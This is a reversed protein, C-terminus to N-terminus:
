IRIIALDAQKDVALVKGHIALSKERDRYYGREPIPKGDRFAPFFVTADKVDGVVHYNTLVLRADKDVLSGTGTALARGRDSHIWVTSRVVKRYVEAGDDKSQGAVAPLVLALVPLAALLRALM